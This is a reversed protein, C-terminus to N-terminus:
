VLEELFKKMKAAEIEPNIMKRIVEAGQVSMKAAHDRDKLYGRVKIAAENTSSFLMCYPDRVWEAMRKDIVYPRYAIVPRGCALSEICSFGYGERIKIHSTAGSKYITKVVEDPTKLEGDTGNLGYYKFDCEPLVKKIAEFIEYSQTWAYQYNHIYTHIRSRNTPLEFKFKKFDILPNIQVTHIGRKKAEEFSGKDAAMHNSIMDFAILGEIYDNGYYTAYKCKDGKVAWINTLCDMTNEACSIIVLDILDTDLFEQYSIMHVRPNKLVEPHGRLHPPFVFDYKVYDKWSDDLLYLDHGLLDCFLIAFAETLRNHCHPQLINM